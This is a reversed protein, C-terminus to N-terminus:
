SVRSIDRKADSAKLTVETDDEACLTEEEHSCVVAFKHSRRTLDITKERGFDHHVFNDNNDAFNDTDNDACGDESDGSGCNDETDSDANNGEDESTDDSTRNMARKTKRKFRGANAWMM